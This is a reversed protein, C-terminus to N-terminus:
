ARRWEPSAWSDDIVLDASATAVTIAVIGDNGPRIKIPLNDVAPGLWNRLRASDSAVEVCTIGIPDVTHAVPQCQPHRTHAGAQWCVIAPLEGHLAVEAGLTQRRLPPGVVASVEEFSLGADNRRVFSAIWDTAVAWSLLPRAELVAARAAVGLRSRGGVESDVVELLHLYGSGCPVIRAALGPPAAVPYSGLGHATAFWEAASAVDGVAVTVHDIWLSAGASGNILAM